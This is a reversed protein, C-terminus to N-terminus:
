GAPPADIHTMHIISATECPGNCKSLLFSEQGLASDDFSYLFTRGNPHYPRMLLDVAYNRLYQSSFPGQLKETMRLKMGETM